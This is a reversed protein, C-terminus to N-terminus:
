NEQVSWGAPLGSPAAVPANPAVPAARSAARSKGLVLLGRLEKLAKEYAEDTQATALRAMAQTAKNGEVETIQGGGKLSEFAELFAQGEIQKALVRANMAETGPTFNRPDISGSLGTMTKRGPANMLQDIVSIGYDAKQLTTPLEAAAEGQLKGQATGSAKATAVNGQVGADIAPPLYAQGGGDTILEFAGTRNNFRGLGRSTQVPTSYPSDGGDQDKMMDKLTAAHGMAWQRIKEQDGGFSAIEAREETVDDGADVGFQVLAQDAMAPNMAIFTATREMLENLVKEQDLEGKRRDGLTKDIEMGAKGHKLLGERGERSRIDATQLYQNLAEQQAQASRLANLQLQGTEHGVLANRVGLEKSYGELPDPMRFRNVGGVINPDLPM